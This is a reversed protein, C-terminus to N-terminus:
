SVSSEALQAVKQSGYVFLVGGATPIKMWLYEMHIVANFKIITSRGFIVNYPYEIDVVDFTIIEMRRTAGEGFTVNLDKKGIASIRQGGFGFLPNQSKRLHKENFGM